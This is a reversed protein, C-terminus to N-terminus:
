RSVPDDYHNGVRLTGRRPGRWMRLYHWPLFGRPEASGGGLAPLYVWPM